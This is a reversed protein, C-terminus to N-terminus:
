TPKVTNEAEGISGGFFAFNTQMMELPVPCDLLGIVKLGLSEGLKKVHEDDSYVDSVGYAKAICVIQRDFKVKAWPANIGGRKDGGDIAKKTMLALEIAARTDFSVIRFVTRKTLIEMYQDIASGAYVLVEALAPTPIIIKTKRQEFTKVLLEMRERAHEIPRGTSPDLPAAAVPSLFLLLMASDIVIM